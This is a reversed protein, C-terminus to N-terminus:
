SHEAVVCVGTAFGSWCHCHVTFLASHSVAPRCCQGINQQVAWRLLVQANSRRCENAVETVVTDSLLQYCVCYYM